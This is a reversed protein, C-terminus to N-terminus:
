GEPGTLRQRDARRVARDLMNMRLSFLGTGRLNLLAARAGRKRQVYRNHAVESLQVGTAGLIDRREARSRWYTIVTEALKVSGVLPGALIWYGATVLLSALTTSSPPGVFAFLLLALQWLSGSGVAHVIIAAIVAILAVLNAASSLAVSTSTVKKAGEMALAAAIEKSSTGLVRTTRALAPSPNSMAAIMVQVDTALDVSADAQAQEVAEPAPRTGLSRAVAAVEAFEPREVGARSLVSSVIKDRMLTEVLDLDDAARAGALTQAADVAPVLAPGTADAHPGAAGGTGTAQRGSRAVVQELGTLDTGLLDSQIIALLEDLTAGGTATLVRAAGSSPAAVLALALAGPPVPRMSYVEALEALLGLCERMGSSLPVGQWSSWARAGPEGPDADVDIAEALGIQDPQGTFLWLRSWDGLQDSRALADLVHGTQLRSGPPRSSAALVLASHVTESLIMGAPEDSTM